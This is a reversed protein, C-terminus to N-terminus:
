IHILSLYHESRKDDETIPLRCAYCQDYDGVELAHNVTVRDDFVFCEGKWLSEEEPVKELYNLIGGKLHYVEDIGQEKLYATSKECRIGGTCFMAVKKPKKPIIDSQAYEPFERFSTTEPNVAHSFTGVQYEYDNRTDIVLVEPDAIMANWDQPEVYTGVVHTPDIGTVGM